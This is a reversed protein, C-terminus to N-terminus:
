FKGAPMDVSGNGFNIGLFQTASQIVTSENHPLAMSVERGKVLEDCRERGVRVGEDFM